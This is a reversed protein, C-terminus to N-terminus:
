AHGDTAISALLILSTDVELFCSGDADAGRGLVCPSFSAPRASSKRATELKLQCVATSGRQAEHNSVARRAEEGHPDSKAGCRFGEDQPAAPLGCRSPHAAGLSGVRRRMRAARIRGLRARVARSLPRLSHRTGSAGMAERAFHFFCVLTTVVPEGPCGPM